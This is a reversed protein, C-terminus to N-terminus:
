KKIENVIAKDGQFTLKYKKIGIAPIRAEIILMVGEKAWYIKDIVLESIKQNGLYTEHSCDDQILKFLEKSEKENVKVIRLEKSVFANCSDQGYGGQHSFLILGVSHDPFIFEKKLGKFNWEEWNSRRYSYFRKKNIIYNDETGGILYNKGKNPAYLKQETKILEEVEHKGIRKKKYGFSTRLFVSQIISCNGKQICARDTSVGSWFGKSTFMVTPHFKLSDFLDTPITTVNTKFSKTFDIRNYTAPQGAKRISSSSLLSMRNDEDVDVVDIMMRLNNMEPINVFGFALPSLSITTKYGTKTAQWKYEVGQEVHGLKEGLAKELYEYKEKDLRVAKRNDPFLAYHVQGYFNNVKMSTDFDIPVEEANSYFSYVPRNHDTTDIHFYYLPPLPSIPMSSNFITDKESLPLSLWLEIRDSLNLDNQNVLKDDVVDVEIIIKDGPSYVKSKVSLDKLGKFNGKGEHVYFSDSTFQKQCYVIFPIWQLILCLAVIKNM